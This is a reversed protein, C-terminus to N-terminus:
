WDALEEPRGPREYGALYLVQTVNVVQSQILIAAFKSGPATVFSPLAIMQGVQSLFFSNLGTLAAAQATFGATNCRRPVGTGGTVRGDRPVAYTPAGGAVPAEALGIYSQQDTFMHTVVTIVGAQSDPAIMFKNFNAPSAALSLRLTWLKERKIISWEPRDSELTIGPPCIEGDGTLAQIAAPYRPAGEYGIV